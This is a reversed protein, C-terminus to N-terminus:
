FHLCKCFWQAIDLLDLKVRTFESASESSSYVKHFIRFKERIRLFIGQYQFINSIVKRIWLKWRTQIRGQSHLKGTEKYILGNNAIVRTCTAKFIKFITFFIVGNWGSQFAKMSQSFHIQNGLIVCYSRNNKSQAHVNFCLSSMWVNM